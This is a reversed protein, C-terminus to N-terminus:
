KDYFTIGCFRTDSNFGVVVRKLNEPMKYDKFAYNGKLNTKEESKLEFNINSGGTYRFAV